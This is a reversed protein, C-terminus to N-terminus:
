KTSEKEDGGVKAPCDENDDTIENEPKGCYVCGKNPNDFDMEFAHGNDNWDPKSTFDDESLIPQDLAKLMWSLTQRLDNIGEQETVPSGGAGNFNTEIFTTVDMAETSSSPKGDKGYYVECIELKYGSGDKEKTKVVRHNWHSV